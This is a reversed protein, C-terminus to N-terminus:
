LTSGTRKRRLRGAKEPRTKQKSEKIYPLFGFKLTYDGCNQPPPVPMFIIKINKSAAYERVTAPVKTGEALLVGYPPLLRGKAHSLVQNIWKKTLRTM